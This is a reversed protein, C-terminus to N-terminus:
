RRHWTLIAAEMLDLAERANPDCTAYLCIQRSRDLMVYAVGEIDDGRTSNRRRLRGSYKARIFLQGNVLGTEGASHSLSILRNDHKLWGFFRELGDQLSGKLPEFESFAVILCRLQARDRLPGEWQLGTFHAERPLWKPDPLVNLVTFENPPRMAFNGVLKLEGLRGTLSQDAHWEEFGSIAMRPSPGADSVSKWNVILIVGWYIAALAACIGAGCTAAVVVRRRRKRARNVERSKPKSADLTVVGTAAPMESLLLDVLAGLQTLHEVPEKATFSRDCAPCLVEEGALRDEIWCEQGCHDCRTEM